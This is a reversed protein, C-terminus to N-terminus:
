WEHADIIDYPMDNDDFGDNNLGLGCYYLRKKLTRKTKCNTNSPPCFSYPFKLRAKNADSYNTM